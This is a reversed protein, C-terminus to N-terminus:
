RTVAKLLVYAGFGLVAYMMWFSASTPDTLACTIDPGFAQSLAPYNQAASYACTTENAILSNSQVTNDDMLSATQTPDNNAMGIEYASYAGENALDTATPLACESLLSTAFPVWSCYDPLQPTTPLACANNTSDWTGNAAVCAAQAVAPTTGARMPVESWGAQINVPTAAIATSVQGIGLMM